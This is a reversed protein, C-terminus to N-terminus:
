VEALSIAQRNMDDEVRIARQMSTYARNAEIMRVMEKVAEVNSSEVSGQVLQVDESIRAENEADVPAFLSNGLKQLRDPFPFTVIKIGGIIEGDVLVTGDETVQVDDGEIVLPGEKGNVTVGEATVLQNDANLRFNGARTFREGQPTLVTFFTDKETLAFDLRNGTHVLRGQDYNKGMDGVITFFQGVGTLPPLHDFHFFSEEDSQSPQGMAQAFVSTFAPQDAKYGVTDVNALNNAVAEMQRELAKGYSVLSFAGQVGM